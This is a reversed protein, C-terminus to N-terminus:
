ASPQLLLLLLLLLLFEGSFRKLLQKKFDFVEDTLDTGPSKKVSLDLPQDEGSAGTEEGSDTEGSDPAPPSTSPSSSLQESSSSLPAEGGVKSLKPPDNPLERITLSTSPPPPPPLLTPPRPLLGVLSPQPWFTAM